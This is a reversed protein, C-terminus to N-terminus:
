RKVAGTPFHAPCYGPRAPEDAPVKNSAKVQGGKIVHGTIEIGCVVCRVTIPTLVTM